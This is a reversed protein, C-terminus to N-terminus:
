SKEKRMKAKTKLMKTLEEMDLVRYKEFLQRTVEDLDVHHIDFGLNKIDDKRVGWQKSITNYFIRGLSTDCIVRQMRGQKPNQWFFAYNVKCDRKNKEKLYSDNYIHICKEFIKMTAQADAYANHFSGDPVCELKEAITQLKYDVSRPVCDRAMKLVDVTERQFQISKQRFYLGELKRIDFMVNYGIMIGPYKELFEFIPVASEHEYQFQELFSNTIGTVETIKDTIPSDPRIYLNISDLINVRFPNHMITAAIAAFEIMQDYPRLGTTETDFFIVIRNGTLIQQLYRRYSNDRNDM